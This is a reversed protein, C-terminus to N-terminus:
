KTSDQRTLVETVSQWCYAAGQTQQPHCHCFRHIYRKEHQYRARGQRPHHYHCDVAELAVGSRSRRPPPFRRSALTPVHPQPSTNDKIQGLSILAILLLLLAAFAALLLAAVPLMVQFILALPALCVLSTIESSGLYAM